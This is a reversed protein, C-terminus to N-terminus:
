PQSLTELVRVCRDDVFRLSYNHAAAASECIALVPPLSVEAAAMYSSAAKETCLILDPLIDSTDPGVIELQLWDRCLATMIDLETPPPIETITTTSITAGLTTSETQFGQLSVRLCRLARVHGWFPTLPRPCTAPPPMPIAITVTTGHHLQSEIHLSGRLAEVIDKVLSLGLGTGQSLVDEQSFPQFARNHLFDPDIGRGSDCVDLLLHSALPTSDGDNDDKGGHGSNGRPRHHGQRVRVHVFGSATYKLANGVINMLLRRVAGADVQCLWNAHPDCDLFVSLAAPRVHDLPTDSAWAIASDSSWVSGSRAPPRRVETARQLHLGSFVSEFTEEVLADVEVVPGYAALTPSRLAELQDHGTHPQRSRVLTNIKSYDLLHDIVDLLTRGCYDMTQLLGAQFTSLETDHLLEVAAVIGHLPSRLEHSLSGLLVSKARESAAADARDVDAMITAAFARLYSLEGEATLCRASSTTWLFSGAFWKNTRLDWMPVLLVSRAGPFMSAVLEYDHTHASCWRGRGDHPIGASSDADSASEGDESTGLPAGDDDLTFIRGSPHRSLLQQLMRDTVGFNATAVCDRQVSSHIGTSFGLVQCARPKDHGDATTGPSLTHNAVNLPHAHTGDDQGGPVLGGYSSISAVWAAFWPEHSELHSTVARSLQRMFRLQGEDLGALRPTEGFVCLVGIRVGSGTVLTVGAYFRNFPPQLMYPRDRFRADLM